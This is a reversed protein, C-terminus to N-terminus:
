GWLIQSSFPAVPALPCFSLPVAFCCMARSSACRRSSVFIFSRSFAACVDDTEEMGVEDGTDLHCYICAHPFGGEGTEKCTAHCMISPYEIAWGKQASASWWVLRSHETTVCIPPFRPSHDAWHPGPHMRIRACNIRTIPGETGVCSSGSAM